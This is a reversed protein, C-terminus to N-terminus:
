FPSVEVPKPVNAAGQDKVAQSNPNVFHKAHGFDETTNNGSSDNDKSLNAKGFPIKLPTDLKITLPAGEYIYLERNKKILSRIQSKQVAYINANNSNNGYIPDSMLDRRNMVSPGMGPRNGKSYPSSAGPRVANFNNQTGVYGIGAGLEPNTKMQNGMVVFEGLVSAVIPFSAGQPTLLSTLQIQLKGTPKPYGKIRPVRSSPIAEVVEGIVKSGAAIVVDVGNSLVPSAITLAFKDGAHSKSSGITHDIRGEFTAGAPIIMSKVSDIDSQGFTINAMTFLILISVLVLDVKVLIIKLLKKMVM